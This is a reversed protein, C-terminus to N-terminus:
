KFLIRCEYLKEQERNVHIIVALIYWESRIFGFYPKTLESINLIVPVDYKEKFLPCSSAQKYSTEVCTERRWM